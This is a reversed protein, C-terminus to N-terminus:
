ESSYDRILKIALTILIVDECFLQQQLERPQLSKTVVSVKVLEILTKM